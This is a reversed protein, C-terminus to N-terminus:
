RRSWVVDGNRREIRVVRHIPIATEFDNLDNSCIDRCVYVYNNDVRRIHSFPIYTYGSSSMRDIIVLFYEEKKEISWLIKNIAEKIRMLMCKLYLIETTLSIFINIRFM